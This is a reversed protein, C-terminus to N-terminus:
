SKAVKEYIKEIEKLSMVKAKSIYDSDLAKKVEKSRFSGLYSLNTRFMVYYCFMLHNTDQIYLPLDIEGELEYKKIKAVTRKDCDLELEIIPLLANRSVKSKKSVIGRIDCNLDEICKPNEVWQDLHCSEHILTSLWNKEKGVQLKKRHYDFRGLCGGGVKDNLSISFNNERCIRLLDNFFATM